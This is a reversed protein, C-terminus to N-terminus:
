EVNAFFVLEELNSLEFFRIWESDNVWSFQRVRENEINSFPSPFIGFM